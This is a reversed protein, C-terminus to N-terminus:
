SRILGLQWMLNICANEANHNTKFTNIDTQNVLTFVVLICPNIYFCFYHLGLQWMGCLCANEANRRIKLTSITAKDVQPLVGLNFWLAHFMHEFLLYFRVKPIAILCLDLFM